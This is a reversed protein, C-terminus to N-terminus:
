EPSVSHSDPSPVHRKKPSPKEPVNDDVIIRKPVRGASSSLRQNKSEMSAATQQINLYLDERLRNMDSLDNSLAILETKTEHSGPPFLSDLSECLVTLDRYLKFTTSISGGSAQADHILNPVAFQLNRRLAEATEANHAKDGRWFTVRHLRAGQQQQLVGLDQNTAPAVRMLEALTSNLDRAVSPASNRAAVPRSQAFAGVSFVLVFVPTLVDRYARRTIAIAM